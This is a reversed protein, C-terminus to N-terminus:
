EKYKFNIVANKQETSTIKIEYKKDGAKIKMLATNPPIDGFNEAVLIVEHFNNYDDMELNVILPRKTLEEDWM